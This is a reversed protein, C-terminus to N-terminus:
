RRAPPHLRLVRRGVPFMDAEPLVDVLTRWADFAGDVDVLAIPGGAPLTDIEGAVAAATIEGPAPLEDGPDPTVGTIDPHISLHTLVELLPARGNVPPNEDLM